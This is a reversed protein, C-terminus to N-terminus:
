EIKYGVCAITIFLLPLALIPACLREGVTTPNAGGKLLIATHSVTDLTMFVTSNM